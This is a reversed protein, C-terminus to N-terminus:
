NFGKLWKFGNAWVGEGAVVWKGTLWSTPVNNESFVIVPIDRGVATAVVKWTEKNEAYPKNTFAILGSKKGDKLVNLINSYFECYVRNKRHFLANRVMSDLGRRYGTIIKVRQKSVTEVVQNVTDQSTDWSLTESGIIAIAM